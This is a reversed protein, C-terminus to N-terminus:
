KTVVIAQEQAQLCLEAAKFVHAQTFANESRHFCDLILQGFFPFGVKGKLQFHQEGDKNVLFLHDGTTERAVDV